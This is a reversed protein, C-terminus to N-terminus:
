AITSSVCISVGAISCMAPQDIMSRGAIQQMAPNDIHTDLVIAQRHAAPMPAQDRAVTASSAALAAASFIIASKSM